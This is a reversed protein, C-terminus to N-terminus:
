RRTSSSPRCRARAPKPRTRAHVRHLVRQPRRGRGRREPHLPRVGRRRPLVGRRGRLENKAAAAAIHRQLEMERCRRRSTWRGSSACSPRSTPSCTKSRRSGSGRRADGEPRRAHEPRLVRVRKPFPVTVARPADRPSLPPGLPDTSRRGHPPRSFAALARGVRAARRVADATLLHDLTAGPALKIKVM